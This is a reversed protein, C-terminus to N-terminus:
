KPSQQPQNIPAQKPAQTKSGYKKTYWQRFDAILARAAKTHPSTTNM